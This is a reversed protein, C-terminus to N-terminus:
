SPYGVPILYLPSLNRDLKLISKVQEDYFAGVTVAGLGLAVAQLCLNQAAHGVEIHVYRVGREGYRATTREYVAAIVFVVPADKVWSQNLAAQALQERIDGQFRLRISHTFPDYQYFGEELNEVANKGVVVFIELPYTAGASPASRFKAFPDTIGQAAWLLQSIQFITLFQTSFSRVSRRLSIAKELSVTGDIRPEPLKVVQALCLFAFLMVLFTLIFSKKLM